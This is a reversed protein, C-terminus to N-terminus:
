APILADGLHPDALLGSEVDSRLRRWRMRVQRHHLLLALEAEGVAIVTVTSPLGKKARSLPRLKADALRGRKAEM